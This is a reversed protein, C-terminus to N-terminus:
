LTCGRRWFVFCLCLGARAGAHIYGIGGDGKKVLLLGGLITGEGVTNHDPVNKRAAM